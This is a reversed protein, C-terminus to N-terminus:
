PMRKIIKDKKAARLLKDVEEANQEVGDGTRYMEAIQFQAEENGREAARLILAIGREDGNEALECGWEYIDFSNELANIFDENEWLEIPVRDFANDDIDCLVAAAFESDAWLSQDIWDYILDFAISFYSHELLELIFSSDSKFSDPIHDIFSSIYDQKSGSFAPYMTFGGYSLEDELNSLIWTIVDPYQWAADPFLDFDAANLNNAYCLSRVVYLADHEDEFFSCPILEDVCNLDDISRAWETIKDILKTAFNGDAWMEETVHNFVAEFDSVEVYESCESHYDCLLELIAIISDKNNWVSQPILECVFDSINLNMDMAMNYIDDDYLPIEIIKRMANDDLWISEPVGWFVERLGDFNIEEGVFRGCEETIMEIATELKLADM